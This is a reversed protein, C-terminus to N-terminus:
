NGSGEFCSKLPKFIHLFPNVYPKQCDRHHPTFVGCEHATHGGVGHLHYDVDEPFVGIEYRLAADVHEREGRGTVGRLRHAVCPQEDICRKVVLVVCAIETAGFAQLVRSRYFPIASEVSMAGGAALIVVEGITEADRGPAYGILPETRVRGEVAVSSEGDRLLLGCRM